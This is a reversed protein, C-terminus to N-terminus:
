PVRETGNLLPTNLGEGAMLAELLQGSIKEGGFLYRDGIVVAPVLREEEPVGHTDYYETIIRLADDEVKNLCVLRVASATGDPLTIREPLGATLPELQRCWPCYDKYFYYIVSDAAFVEADFETKAAGHPVYPEPTPAPTPAAPKMQPFIPYVAAEKIAPWVKPMVRWGLAFGAILALLVCLIILGKKRKPVACARPDTINPENEM